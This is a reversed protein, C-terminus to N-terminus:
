FRCEASVFFSNRQSFGFETLITFHKTVGYQGGILANWPSELHQNVDFRGGGSQNATAILPQLAAPMSLDSLSGKFEQEVDQYMGGIWLHMHTRGGIGPVQFHHGIRPSVTWASIHGDLVDFRTRTHNVDVLAFWNGHGGALTFGAGYTVGKFDLKFDLDRLQGSQNMGQVGAAILYDLGSYRNPDSNVSIESLSSGRTHGVIGYVDLFPFLWADFRLNETESRQRTKGAEVAFLDSPIAHSGISLGSFAISDVAINQRINMHGIGIGFPEPLAFGRLRAETGGIPLARRQPEPDSRAPTADHGAAPLAEEASSSSGAQGALTEAGDVDPPQALALCSFMVAPAVPLTRCNFLKM